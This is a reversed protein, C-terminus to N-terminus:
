AQGNSPSSALPLDEMAVIHVLAVRTVGDYISPSEKSASGIQIDNRGVLVLDPHMIKFELGESVIFRFPRFPKERMRALIVEATYM